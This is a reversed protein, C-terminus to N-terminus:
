FVLWITRELTSTPDKAIAAHTRYNILTDAGNLRAVLGYERLTGTTHNADPWNPMHPGLQARIQLKNTPAAVVTDSAPDVYEFILTTHDYFNLDVLNTTASSPPPTAIADWAPDGAGVRLAFIRQVTTAPGHMFGSLVKRGGDTIVNKQRGSDFLLTGDAARLVDRVYGAICDIPHESQM